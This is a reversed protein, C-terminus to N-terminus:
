SPCLMIHVVPERFELGCRRKGKLPHPLALLSSVLNGVRRELYVLKLDEIGVRFSMKNAVM